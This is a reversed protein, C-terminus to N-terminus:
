YALVSFPLAFETANFDIYRLADWLRQPSDEAWRPVQGARRGELGGKGNGEEESRMDRAQEAGEGLEPLPQTALTAELDQQALKLVLRQTREKMWVLCVHVCDSSVHCALAM